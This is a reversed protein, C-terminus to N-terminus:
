DQESRVNKSPPLTSFEEQYVTCYLMAYQYDADQARLMCSNALTAKFDRFHASCQKAPPFFQM